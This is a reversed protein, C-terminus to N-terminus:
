KDKEPMEQNLVVNYSDIYTQLVGEKTTPEGHMKTKEVIFITLDLAIREYRELNNDAM